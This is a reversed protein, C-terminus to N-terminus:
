QSFGPTQAAVVYWYGRQPVTERNLNEGEKSKLLLALCAGTVWKIEGGLHWKVQEATGFNFLM